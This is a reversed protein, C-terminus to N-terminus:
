IKIRERKKKKTKPVAKASSRAPPETDLVVDLVGDSHDDAAPMSSRYEQQTNGPATNPTPINDPKSRDPAPPMQESPTRRPDDKTPVQEKITVKQGMVAIPKLIGMIEGRTPRTTGIAEKGVLDTTRQLLKDYDETAVVALISLCTKIREPLEVTTDFVCLTDTAMAKKIFDMTVAPLAAARVEGPKIQIFRADIDYVVRLNDGFNVLTCNPEPMPRKALPNM